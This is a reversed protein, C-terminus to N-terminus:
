IIGQTMEPDLSLIFRCLLAKDFQGERQLMWGLAQQSSWGKKYSRAATLADFVDCITSMRVELSLDTAVLRDPYGKGDLREHHRRCIDLVVAPIGQQRSLLRHGLDPHQEVLVREEANLPGHKHLVETPIALKGLDHLLGAICLHQVDAEDMDLFRAFHLLLASVSLSHIFTATDRSRLRSMGIFLTPNEEMTRGIDQALPAFSELRVDRGEFVGQLLAKAQDAQTCLRSAVALKEQRSAQRLSPRRGKGIEAVEGPLACKSLATNIFVGSIKSNQILALQQGDRVTFRRGMAPADQWAGEIAEIFM